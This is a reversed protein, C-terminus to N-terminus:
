ALPPVDIGTVELILTRENADSLAGNRYLVLHPLALTQPPVGSITKGNQTVFPITAGSAARLAVQPV